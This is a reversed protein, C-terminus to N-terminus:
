FAHNIWVCNIWLEVLKVYILSNDLKFYSYNLTKIWVINYNLINIWFRNYNLGNLQIKMYKLPKKNSDASYNSQMSEILM